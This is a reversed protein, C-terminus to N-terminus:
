YDRVHHEFEIHRQLDAKKCFNKRCIFCIVDSHVLRRHRDMDSKSYFKKKCEPCGHNKVEYHVSLIHRKIM